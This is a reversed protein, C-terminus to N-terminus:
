KLIAAQDTLNQTERDSVNGSNSTESDTKQDAGPYNNYKEHMKSEFKMKADFYYDIM